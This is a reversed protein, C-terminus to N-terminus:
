NHKSVDLEWIVQKKTIAGIYENTDANRLIINITYTKDLELNTYIYNEAVNTGEHVKQGNLYYEIKM